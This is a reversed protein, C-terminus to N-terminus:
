KKAKTPSCCAVRGLQGCQQSSVVMGYGGPFDPDEELRVVMAHSTNQTHTWHGCSDSESSGPFGTYAEIAFLSNAEGLGTVGSWIPRVFSHTTGPPLGAPLSETYMIEETTCMRSGAFKGACLANMGFLTQAVSVDTAPETVRRWRIVVSNGNVITTVVPADPVDHTLESTATIL